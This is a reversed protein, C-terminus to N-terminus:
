NLSASNLKLMAIEYSQEFIMDDQTANTEELTTVREHISPAVPVDPAPPIPTYDFELEKTEPNVKYSTCEAFETAFEGFKLQIYDVSEKTYKSLQEYIEWDKEPPIIILNGEAEGTEVIINGNEKLFYIRRGVYQYKSM